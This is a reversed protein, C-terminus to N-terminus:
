NCNFDFNTITSKKKKAYYGTHTLYDSVANICHNKMDIFILKLTILFSFRMQCTVKDAGEGLLFTFYRATFNRM